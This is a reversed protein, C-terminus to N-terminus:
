RERTKWERMKLAEGGGKLAERERTIHGRCNPRARRGHRSRVARSRSVDDAAAVKVDDVFSADATMSGIQVM